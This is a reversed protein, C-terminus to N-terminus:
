DDDDDFADKFGDFCTINDVCNPMKWFVNTFFYIINGFIYGFYWSCKKEDPKKNKKYKYNNM